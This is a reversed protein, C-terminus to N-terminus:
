RRSIFSWLLIAVGIPGGQYFSLLLQTIGFIPKASDYLIKVIDTTTNYAQALKYYSQSINKLMEVYRNPLDTGDIFEWDEEIDQTLLEKKEKSYKIFKIVDDIDQTLTLILELNQPHQIYLNDKLQNLKHIVTEDDNILNDDNNILNDVVDKDNLVSLYSRNIKEENDKIDKINYVNDPNILADEMYMTDYKERYIEDIEEETLTLDNNM